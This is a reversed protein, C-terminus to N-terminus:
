LGAPTPSQISRSRRVARGTFTSVILWVLMLLMTLLSAINFFKGERGGDFNLDVRINGATRPALLLFGMADRRVEVPQGNATAHWGPSWTEQISIVDNPPLDAAILAEHRNKWVLSASPRAPDTLARVYPRLPEVDVGNVPARAIVEDSHIVHALSTTLTPIRYIRDDGQQWVIPFASDFKHPHRWTQYSDRTKPGSELVAQAGWTRLWLEAFEEDHTGAGDGSGIQYGVIWSMYNPLGPLCCGTVQPQDSWANLWFQISGLLYVREDHLHTDLWRAAQWEYTSSIEVPREVGRVYRTYTRAQILAVVAFVVLASIRYSGLRDLGAALAAAAFLAIGLEMGIHFREPQPFLAVHFKFAVLAVTGPILFWYWGFEFLRPFRARRLLIRSAILALALATFYIIHAPTYPYPGGILQSNRQNDRITSPLDLPAILLYAAVALATLRVLRTRAETWDRSLLYALAGCAMVLSAPWSVIVTLGLLFAAIAFRWASLRRYVADMALLAFPVINLGSVNPGEGFFALAQFRRAHLFGGMDKTIVPIFASPSFLSFLLAAILGADRRGSIRYALLFIGVPGLCYFLAITIHYGRAADVHLLHSVAACILPLGPQYTSQFLEGNNWLPFWTLDPFNDLVYRTLAIYAAEISFM